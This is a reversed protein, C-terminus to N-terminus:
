FLLCFLFLNGGQWTGNYIKIHCQMETNRRKNPLEVHILRGNMQHECLVQIDQIPQKSLICKCIQRQVMNLNLSHIM